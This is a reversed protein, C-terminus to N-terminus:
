ATEGIRKVADDTWWLGNAVMRFNILAALKTTNQDSNM